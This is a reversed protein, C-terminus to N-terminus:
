RFALFVGLPNIGLVIRKPTANCLISHYLLFASLLIGIKQALDKAYASAFFM